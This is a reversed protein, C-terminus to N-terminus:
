LNEEEGTPENGTRIAAFERQEDVVFYVPKENRLIDLIYHLKKLPMHANIIGNSHVTVRPGSFNERFDIHGRYSNTDDRMYLYVPEDHFGALDMVQYYDIVFTTLM